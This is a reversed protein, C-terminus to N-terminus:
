NRFSICLTMWVKFDPTLKSSVGSKNNLVPWFHLIKDNRAFSGHENTWDYSSHTLPMLNEASHCENCFTQNDHCNYCNTEKRRADLAHTYRYNLEHVTGNTNDGQHCDICFSENKHCGACYKEDLVAQRGHETKWNLPHIDILDYKDSHCFRCENGANRGNGACNKSTVGGGKM